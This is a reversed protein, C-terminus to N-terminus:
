SIEPSLCDFESVEEKNSSGFSHGYQEKADSDQQKIEKPLKESEKFSSQFKPSNNAAVLDDIKKKYDKAVSSRYKISPPTSWPVENETFYRKCKENGGNKL